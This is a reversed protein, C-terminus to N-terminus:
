QPLYANTYYNEAVGAAAKDVGGYTVLMQLSEDM